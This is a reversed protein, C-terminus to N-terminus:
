GVLGLGSADDEDDWPLAWKPLDFIIRGGPVYGPWEDRMLCDSLTRLAQKYEDRGAELVYEPIDMLYSDFPKDSEVVAEVVERVDIGSAALGDYYYAWQLHYGLRAAQTMFIRPKARAASKLGFLAGAMLRDFRAKCALGTDRDIWTITGEVRGPQEIYHRIHKNARCSAVIQDCRWKWAATVYQRDTNARRWEDWATGSTITTGSQESWWENRRTKNEKAEEKSIGAAATVGGWEPEVIYVDEFRAPELLAVHAAVGFELADTAKRGEELLLRYHKPSDAWIAKLTSYNIGKLDEYQM